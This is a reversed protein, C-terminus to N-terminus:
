AGEVHECLGHYAFAPNGKLNGCVGKIGLLVKLGQSARYFLGVRAIERSVCRSIVEIRQYRAKLHCHRKGIRGTRQTVQFGPLLLVIGRHYFGDSVDLALNGFVWSRYCASIAWFFEFTVQCAAVGTTDGHCVPKDIAGAWGLRISDFNDLALSM